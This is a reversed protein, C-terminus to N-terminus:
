CRRGRLNGAVSFVQMTRTAVNASVDQLNQGTAILENTLYHYYSKKQLRQIKFDPLQLHMDRTNADTTTPVRSAAKIDNWKTLKDTYLGTYALQLPTDM